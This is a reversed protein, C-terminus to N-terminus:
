IIESFADLIEALLEETFVDLPIPLGPVDIERPAPGGRYKVWWEPPAVRRTLADARDDFEIEEGLQPIRYGVKSLFSKYRRCIEVRKESSLWGSETVMICPVRRDNQSGDEDVYVRISYDRSRIACSGRGRAVFDWKMARAFERCVQLVRPGFDKVIQEEQKKWEKVKESLTREHEEKRKSLSRFRERWDM